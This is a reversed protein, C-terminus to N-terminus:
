DLLEGPLILTDETKSVRTTTGGTIAVATSTGANM